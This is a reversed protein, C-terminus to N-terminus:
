NRDNIQCSWIKATFFFQPGEREITGKRNYRNEPRRLDTSSSYDTVSTLSYYRSANELLGPWKYGLKLHVYTDGYNSANTGTRQDNLGGAARTVLLRRPPYVRHRGDARARM